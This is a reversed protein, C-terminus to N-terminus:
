ASAAEQPRRQPELLSVSASVRADLLRQDPQLLQKLAVVPLGRVVDDILLCAEHRTSVGRLDLGKALADAIQNLVLMRALHGLM